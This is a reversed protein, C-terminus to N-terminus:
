NGYGVPKDAHPARRRRRVMVLVQALVTLALVIPAHGALLHLPSTNPCHLELGVLGALAGATAPVLVFGPLQRGRRGLLAIVAIVPLALASGFLFCAAARPLVIESAPGASPLGASLPPLAALLWPLLLGAGLIAFLTWAHPQTRYLPRLWVRCLALAIGLLGAIEMVMRAAPLSAMDARALALGIAAPICLGLCTLSWRASSPLSALRVPIRQEKALLSELDQFSPVTATEGPPSAAVALFRALAGNNDTLDKCAPCEELHRQAEPAAITGGDLVIRRLQLCDMDPVERCGQAPQPKM